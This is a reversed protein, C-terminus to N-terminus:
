VIKPRKDLQDKNIMKDLIEFRRKKEAFPIKDPYIKAAVTGPRPSYMAVFAMIFHARKVLDVTELFEAETENGFGVIIDTGITIEPDAKQLRQILNLYKERTYGRNMRQLVANSGSQVPLHLFRDIKKNTVIEEVLEDYFDWPNSTLFRIKQVTEIASIARLLKVFPPIGRYAHYQDRNQPLNELKAAALGAKRSGIQVKELGWSNVNQGLLTIEHYGDAVAQQVDRMVDEFSRSKERGRAYPVVCYTCFSNCGISIQVFAQTQDKRKPLLDFSVSSPEQVKNLLPYKKLLKDQYRSMCGTLVVEPLQRGTKLQWRTQKQGHEDKSIIQDFFYTQMQNLLAYVRDDAAKRVSCTNIFIYSAERWDQTPQLGKQEYFTAQRESENKNAQCGYTVIFYFM